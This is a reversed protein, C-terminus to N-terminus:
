YGYDWPLDIQGTGSASPNGWQTTATGMIENLNALGLASENSNGNTYLKSNTILADTISTGFVQNMQARTLMVRQGNSLTLIATGPSTPVLSFHKIFVKSEGDKVFSSLKVGKNNSVVEGKNNVKVGYVNQNGLESAVSVMLEKGSENNLTHTLQGVVPNGVNTSYATQVKDLNNRSWWGTEISRRTIGSGRLDTYFQYQSSSKAAGIIEATTLGRKGTNNPHIDGSALPGYYGTNTYVPDKGYAARYALTAYKNREAPTKAHEAQYIYNAIRSGLKSNKVGTVTLEGNHRVFGYKHYKKFQNANNGKVGALKNDKFAWMRAKSQQQQAMAAAQARGAERAEAMRHRHAQNQLASQMGFQDAVMQYQTTGIAHYLGQRAYDYARRVTDADGWNKVGSTGIASEVLGTLISDADPSNLIAKMVAERSFGNQQVMEYQYPVIQRLKRKGEESDRAEKAINAAAQAVQQTLLAGSYQSGYDLSPNKIFDDLSMNRAYRQYLMTPNAAMAKRQEEALAERRKYATEIPLIEKSYRARMDLMGKRSSANLGYKMLEDARASLDDSYTKYMKYAYPDTQKNAMNEFVSAKASLNGYEEEIAQHAQTAAIVPAVMEQYSFPKFKTDLILSYNAM